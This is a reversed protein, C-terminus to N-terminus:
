SELSCRIPMFRLVRELTAPDSDLIAALHRKAHDIKALTTETDSYESLVDQADSLSSMAEYTHRIMDSLEM